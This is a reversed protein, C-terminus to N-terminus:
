STIQGNPLRWGASQQDNLPPAMASGVSLHVSPARGIEAFEIQEEAKTIGFQRTGLFRLWWWPRSVAGTWGGSAGSPL